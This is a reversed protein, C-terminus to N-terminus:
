PRSNRDTLAIGDIEGEKFCCSHAGAFHPPGGELLRVDGNKMVLFDTTFHISKPGAAETDAKSPTGPHNWLSAPSVLPGTLGAALRGAWLKVADLERARRRLPRQPYYSSIGEVQADGVFARYEVPYGDVIEVDNGVWPRQWVAVEDGPYAMGLEIIRTDITLRELIERSPTRGYAMAHKLDESSCCDWRLMTGPLRAAEMAAWAKGLREHHPGPTDYQTLDDIAVSTIQTADIHPVGARRALELWDGLSVTRFVAATQADTTGTTTASAM